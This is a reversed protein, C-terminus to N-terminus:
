RKSQKDIYGNFSIAQRNNSTVSLSGYGNKSVTLLMQRVDTEDNPKIEIQWGGKKNQKSTYVFDTSTFEIGGSTKGIPATYARGFYPLYSIVSDKRVTLSYDSTLQV